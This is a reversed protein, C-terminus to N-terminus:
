MKVNVNQLQAKVNQLQALTFQVQLMDAFNLAQHHNRRHVILTVATYYLSFSQM